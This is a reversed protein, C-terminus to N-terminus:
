GAEVDLASRGVTGRMFWPNPKRRWISISSLSETRGM